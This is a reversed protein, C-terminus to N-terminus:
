LHGMRRFQLELYLFDADNRRLGFADHNGNFAAIAAIELNTIRIGTQRVICHLQRNGLLDKNRESYFSITFALEFILDAKGFQPTSKATGHIRWAYAM